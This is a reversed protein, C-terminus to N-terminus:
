KQRRLYTRYNKLITYGGRLLYFVALAMAGVFILSVWLAHDNIPKPINSPFHDFGSLSKALAGVAYPLCQFYQQFFTLETFGEPNQFKFIGLPSQVFILPVLLLAVVFLLINWLGGSGYNIPAPEGDYGKPQLIVQGGFLVHKLDEKTM